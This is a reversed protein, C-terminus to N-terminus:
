SYIRDINVELEERRLPEEATITDREVVKKLRVEERVFAEKHIEATEEYLEIRIVETAQFDVDGPPVVSGVESSNVREIAVREREVPVSIQAQDTEISKRVTVEGTKVRNKLSILREEYLKLTQHDQENMSYLMPEQEYTYPARDYADASPHHYILPTSPEVPRSLDSAGNRYVQRVWEEYERDIKLDNSFEPLDEVKKQTLGIAYVRKAESDIRSRGIPILVEKGPIWAYTDILLYRFRGVEDVLINKVIGVKEHNIDSYVDFGKIDENGFNELDRSDFEDIKYLTM